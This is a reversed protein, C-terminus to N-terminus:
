AAREELRNEIFETIDSLHATGWIAVVIAGITNFVLDLLSDTLGYQTLVTDTGLLAAIEALAFELIEWFVGYALVFLLIFVFVFRSPLDIAESHEDLARVTSYGVGAVVSSSLAHTM